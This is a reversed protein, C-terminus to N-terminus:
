SFSRRSSINQIIGILMAKTLLSSGGYSLFPFTVGIIPLLGITSGVNLMFESLFLIATGLCVLQSFTDSSRLGITVIRFIMTFFAGLILLGGLFGWEEIFSAFIFDTGPEPLFGLQTQTGRQFGKGLFGGSGIAIRAQISSYNIGLPDYSPELFGIIREKQYPALFFMWAVVGLLLCLFFGIALHHWRIGSVFLFGVWVLFLVLASGWDPQLFLIGMPLAVYVFSIAINRVHAIGIHRRAFFYALFIVLGIKMLESPQFQFSGFVLWSQAERIVPAFFLTSLLLVLSILYAGLLYSRYNIIPRMDVNSLLFIIGFALAFWILQEPFLESAGSMIGVLSALALFFVSGYLFWDQRKFVSM